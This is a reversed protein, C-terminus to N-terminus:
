NTNKSSTGNASTYVFDYGFVDVLNFILRDTAAQIATAVQGSSLKSDSLANMIQSQAHRFYANLQDSKLMGLNVSVDHGQDTHLILYGNGINYNNDFDLISEPTVKIQDINTIKGNNVIFYDKAQVANKSLTGSKSVLHFGMSTNDYMKAKKDEVISGENNLPVSSKVYGSIREIFKGQDTGDRTVYTEKVENKPNNQPQEFLRQKYEALPTKIGINDRTYIKYQKDPDIKAAKYLDPEHKKYYEINSLIAQRDALYKETLEPANRCKDFPTTDGKLRYKIAGLGNNGSPLVQIEYTNGDPLTIEGAPKNKDWIKKPDRGIDFGYYDMKQLRLGEMYVKSSADATGTIISGDSAVVSEDKEGFESNYRKVADTYNEGPVIDTNTQTISPIYDQQKSLDSTYKALRKKMELEFYPDEFDQVSPKMIGKAWGSKGRNVLRQREQSDVNSDRIGTADYRNILSEVLLQVVDDTKNDRYYRQRDALSMNLVDDVVLGAMSVEGNTFGQDLVRTLKGALAPNKVVSNPDTLGRLMASARAETESALDKEFQSSDYSFWDQGYNDDFLYKDLGDLGPDPSTILDPNNHRATWYEKSRAQRNEIAKAIRNIDSAYSARASALDRRTGTNYGNKWLNDQLRSLKDIYNNYLMRTQDDGDDTDSIYRRLAETEMNLQDYSDAAANQAETMQALPKVLEDYTFPEYYSGNTVIFRAM